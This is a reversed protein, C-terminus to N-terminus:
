RLNLTSLANIQGAKAKTTVPGLIGQPEDVCTGNYAKIRRLYLEVLRSTTLKGSLIASQIDDITAEQLRFPRNDQAQPVAVLGSSAFLPLAALCALIKLTRSM